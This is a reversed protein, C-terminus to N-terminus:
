RLRNPRDDRAATARIEGRVRELAHASRRQQEDAAVVRLHEDEIFARERSQARFLLEDDNGARGMQEFFPASELRDRLVRRLPECPVERRALM